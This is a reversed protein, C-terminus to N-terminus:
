FSSKLLVIMGIREELPIISIAIEEMFAKYEEQERHRETIDEFEILPVPLKVMKM